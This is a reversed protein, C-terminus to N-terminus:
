RFNRKEIGVKQALHIFFNLLKATNRYDRWTKNDGTIIAEFESDSVGLKKAIFEQDEKAQKEDYPNEAIKALAEERTMQGTLILSSFYCRRKDYGFKNPLYYGEYWRTFINEYHKNKYRQYGFEEELTKLATEQEYPVYDLPKVVKMGKIGRYYLRNKLMSCTPFTKLSTKGFKKHIDKILALDNIYTWEFPPKVCETSYNGGTLVYKIGKKVAYNYLGAFIVHDQPTDQYPVQAKLFALQLDKMEQWNVVETYLDLKLTKVIKEINEVAVNLNWGSDVTFLLPKLGMVKTAIYTLYSSDVGGSVGIICDYKRGKSEEKIRKAIKMLEQYGREDTHWSPVINQKFSTCFDCEGQENFSIQPDSTDMICNTCIRYDRHGLIKKSDTM